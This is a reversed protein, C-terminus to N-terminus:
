YHQYITHNNTSCNGCSKEGMKLDDNIILPSLYYDVPLKEKSTEENVHKRKSRVCSTKSSRIFKEALAIKMNKLVKWRDIGVKCPMKLAKSSTTQQNSACLYKENKIFCVSM